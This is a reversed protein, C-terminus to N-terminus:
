PPPGETQDPVPADHRGPHRHTNQYAWSAGQPFPIFHLHHPIVIRM